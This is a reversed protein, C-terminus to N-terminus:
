FFFFFPVFSCHERESTRTHLEPRGSPPRGRVLLNEPKIDRHVINLSHLYKIASALNYLMGSADRETYKNTSTIADFLDGGQSPVAPPAARSCISWHPRRSLRGVPWCPLSPHPRSSQNRPRGRLPGPGRVIERGVALAVSMELAGSASCLVPQRPAGLRPPPGLHGPCLGQSM